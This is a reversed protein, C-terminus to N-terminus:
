CCKMSIPPLSLEWSNPPRPQEGWGKPCQSSLLKKAMGWVEVVSSRGRETCTLVLARNAM